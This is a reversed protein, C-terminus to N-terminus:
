FLMTRSECHVRPACLACLDCHNNSALACPGRLAHLYVQVTFHECSDKMGETARTGKRGISKTGKTGETAETNDRKWLNLYYIHWKNESVYINCFLAYILNRKVNHLQLSPLAALAASQLDTKQSNL